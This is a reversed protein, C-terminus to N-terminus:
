IQPFQQAIPDGELSWGSVSATSDTWETFALRPTTLEAAVVMRQIRLGVFTPTVTAEAPDADTTAALRPVATTLASVDSPSVSKTVVVGPSSAARVTMVPVVKLATLVVEPDRGGLDQLTLSLQRDAISVQFTRTVFQRAATALRAVQKGELFIGMGEHARTADGVTVTVRYPGNPLDIAFTSKPTAVFDRTLASLIGRDVSRVPGGQWGYGRSLTYTDDSTARIYGAAVPSTTTGFDLAFGKLPVAVQQNGFDLGSVSEGRGVQALHFGLAYDNRSGYIGRIRDKDVASLRTREGSYDEDMMNGWPLGDIHGLGLAHGIEHAAITFYDYTGPPNGNGIVEDWKEAM